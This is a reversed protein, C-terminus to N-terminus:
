QIYKKKSKMEKIKIVNGEEPKSERRTENIGEKM